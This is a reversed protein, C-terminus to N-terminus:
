NPIPILSKEEKNTNSYCCQYYCPMVYLYHCKLSLKLTEQIENGM